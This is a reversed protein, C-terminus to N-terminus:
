WFIATLGLCFLIQTELIECLIKSAKERTRCGRPWQLSVNKCIALIHLVTTDHFNKISTKSFTPSPRTLKIKLFKAKLTWYVIHLYFIFFTVTCFNTTKTKKDVLRGPNGSPINEFRFDFNLYIKSPRSISSTPISKPVNPGNLQRKTYKISMQFRKHYNTINKGNQYKTYLFIQCGHLRGL